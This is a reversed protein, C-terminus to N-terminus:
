EIRVVLCVVKLRSGNGVDVFRYVDSHSELDSLNDSQYLRFRKAVFQLNTLENFFVVQSM